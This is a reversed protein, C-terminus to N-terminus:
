HRRNKRPRRARRGPKAPTSEKTLAEMELKLRESEENSLITVVELLKPQIVVRALEMSETFLKPGVQIAKKGTASKYFGVLDKLEEETFYKDYLEYSIEEILVPFNVREEFLEKVRRSTRESNELTEKRVREKNEDSLQAFEPNNEVSQTILDITMKGQQDLMGQYVEVAVKKAETVDMLEAILARKAPVITPKSADQGFASALAFFTMVIVLTQQVLRKVM